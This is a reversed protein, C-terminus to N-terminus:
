RSGGAEDEVDPLSELHLYPPEDLVSLRFFARDRFERRLRGEMGPGDGLFMVDDSLDPRVHRWSLVFSGVESLPPIAKWTTAFQPALVVAHRVGSKEAFGYLADQV